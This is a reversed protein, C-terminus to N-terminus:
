KKNREQDGENIFPKGPNHHHHHHHHYQAQMSKSWDNHDMKKLEFFHSPLSKFLVNSDPIPYLSLDRPPQLLNQHIPPLSHYPAVGPIPLPICSPSSFSSLSASHEFSTMNGDNKLSKRKSSGKGDSNTAVAATKIYRRKGGTFLHSYEGDITWFMGKGPTDPNRPVKLFAKNLSL